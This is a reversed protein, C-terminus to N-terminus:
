IRLVTSSITPSIGPPIGARVLRNAWDTCTPIAFIPSTVIKQVASGDNVTEWAPTLDPETMPCECFSCGASVDPCTSGCPAPTTEVPEVDPVCSSCSVAEVSCCTMASEEDQCTSISVACSEATQACLGCLWVSPLTHLTLCFLALFRTLLKMRTRM